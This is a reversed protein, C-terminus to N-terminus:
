RHLDLMAFEGYARRLARLGSKLSVTLRRGARHRPLRRSGHSVILSTSM